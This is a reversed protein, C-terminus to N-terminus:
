PKDLTYLYAAIDAADQPTLGLNPMAADPEVGHTDLLWRLMNGPTNPLEGALYDRVAIGGLPPGVHVDRGLIGPIKHCANCGYQPIARAGRRADGAAIPSLGIGAPVSVAVAAFSGPASRSLLGPVPERGPRAGSEAEKLLARFAPPSLRPMFAVFATVDWIEGDDLRYDWAPMGTMKIGHKITWFIEGLSSNRAAYVLNSPVPAMGLAFEEPAVGPAGHCRLCRDEYRIAGRLVANRDLEPARVGRSHFAVARRLGEDLAWYVPRSHPRTAAVDYVGSFLVAAIGGAGIVVLLCLALLVNKIKGV